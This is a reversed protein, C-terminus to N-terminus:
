RWLIATAALDGLAQMTARYPGPGYSVRAVGAAALDAVPPVGQRWIANVPLALAACLREILALDVLGPVFFGDAGAQEYAQGRDIAEALLAAHMDIPAQLFLDTRANLFFNRGTAGAIAAIRAAQDAIPHVGGGGIRQDEFNCGVAGTEVLRAVNGAVQEPAEGYGGEFDVSVPLDVAAVVRAANALVLDLPLQEGDASGHAAAVGLSGTAIAAAGAGAVARASGADWANVIIVPDGPVHLAQFTRFRALRDSM